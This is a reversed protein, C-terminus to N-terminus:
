NFRGQAYSCAFWLAGAAITLPLLADMLGYRPYMPYERLRGTNPCEWGPYPGHSFDLPTREGDAYVAMYVHSYRNPEERDASVAVISCPIGLAGFLASAYGEFGDCDERGVGQRAIMRAMDAPRIVVEVVDEKRPDNVALDQALASDEKFRMSGKVLKWVGNMCQQPYTLTPDFGFQLAQAAAAQVMPDSVDERAWQLIRDLAVNVQGDPDEPLPYFTYGIVDGFDPHYAYSEM